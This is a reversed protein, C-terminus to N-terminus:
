YSIVIDMEMPPDLPPTTPTRVGGPIIRVGGSFYPSILNQSTFILAFELNHTEILNTLWIKIKHIYV